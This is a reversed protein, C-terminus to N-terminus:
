GWTAALWPQAGLLMLLGGLMNRVSLVRVRQSLWRMTAEYDM